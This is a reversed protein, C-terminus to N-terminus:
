NLVYGVKLDKLQEKYNDHSFTITVFCTINLSELYTILNNMPLLYYNESESFTTVTKWKFHKIFAVRAANRTSEPAVTRFFLPFKNRDSM